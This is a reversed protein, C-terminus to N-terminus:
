CTVTPTCARLNGCSVTGMLPNPLHQPAQPRHLGGATVERFPGDRCEKACAGNRPQLPAIMCCCPAHGTYPMGLPIILKGVGRVVLSCVTATPDILTTDTELLM